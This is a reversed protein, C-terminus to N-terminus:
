RAAWLEALKAELARKHAPSMYYGLGWVAEIKIGWPKLDRRIKCIYVDVIKEEPQDVDPLAGWLAAYIASRRLLEAKMLMGLIQRGAGGMKGEILFERPFDAHLGLLKELETIRECLQDVLDVDSM